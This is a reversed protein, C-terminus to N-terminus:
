RSTQCTRAASARHISRSSRTGPLYPLLPRWLAAEAWLGSHLLLPEGEGHIEAHIRLGRVLLQRHTVGGASALTIAEGMTRGDASPRVVADASTAAM